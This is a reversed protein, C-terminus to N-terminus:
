QFLNVTRESPFEARDYDATRKRLRFCQLEKIVKSDGHRITVAECFRPRRNGDVVQFRKSRSSNALRKRSHLYTYSLGVGLADALNTNTALRDHGAVKVIRFQRRLRNNIPPKQRTIKPSEIGGTM